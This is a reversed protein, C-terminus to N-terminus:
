MNRNYSFSFKDFLEFLDFFTNLMFTFKFNNKLDAYWMFSLM